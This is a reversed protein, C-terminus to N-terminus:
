GRTAPPCGRAHSGAEAGSTYSLSLFFGVVGGLSHHVLLKRTYIVPLAKFHTFCNSVKHFITPFYKRSLRGAGGWWSRNGENGDSVMDQILSKGNDYAAAAAAAAAGPPPYRAATAAYGQGGGNAAVAAAAARAVSEKSLTLTGAAGAAASGVTGKGAGSSGGGPARRLSSADRGSGLIGGGGGGLGLGPTGSPPPPPPTPNTREMVGLVDAISAEFAVEREVVAHDVMAALADRVERAGCRAAPDAAVCRQAAAALACAADITGGALGAWEVSADALIRWGEVDGGDGAVAADVAGGTGGGGGATKKRTAGSARVSGPSIDGAGVAGGGGKKGSGGAVKTQAAIKAIAYDALRSPRWTPMLPPLGTLLELLIVGLSFVDAPEFGVDGAMVEPAIYGETTAYRAANLVRQNKLLPPAAGAGGAATVGGAAGGGAATAAELAAAYSARLQAIPISKGLDTVCACMREDLLVNATKLDRILWKCGVHIYEVADAIQAACRLRVGPPM